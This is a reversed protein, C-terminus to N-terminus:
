QLFYEAIRITKKDATVTRVEIYDIKKLDSGPSVFAYAEFNYMEGEKNAILPNAYTKTGAANYIYLSLATKNSSVKGKVTIRGSSADYDAKDISLSLDGYRATEGLKYRGDDIKPTASPLTSNNSSPVPTSTVVANPSSKLVTITVTRNKGDWQVDAGLSESIFRLPVFTRSNTIEPPVDLIKKTGNVYASTNDITLCIESTKNNALVTRTPADWQVEMGFAEFIGRFPVLTRSDKIYPNVDFKLTEGDLIVKIPKDGTSGSSFATINLSIFIIFTFLVLSLRKPERLFAQWVM